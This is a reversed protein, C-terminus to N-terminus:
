LVGGPSQKQNDKCQIHSDLSHAHLKANFLGLLIREPAKSLGNLLLGSSEGKGLKTRTESLLLYVTHAVDKRFGVTTVVHTNQHIVDFSTHM